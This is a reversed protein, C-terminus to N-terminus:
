IVVLDGSISPSFKLNKLYQSIEEKEKPYHYAAIVVKIQPNRKLTKEAGKLIKLEPGEADIKILDLKTINLEQLLTDLTKVNIQIKDIIEEGSMPFFSHCGSGKTVFFDKKGNSDSLAINVPIANKIKNLELNRRLQKFNHMEPEIAIVKGEGGVMKSALLTFTGIHAGVDVVIMRPKLQSFNYYDGMCVERFAGFDVADRLGIYYPDNIPLPIILNKDKFRSIINRSIDIANGRGFLLRPATYYVWYKLFPIISYNDKKWYSRYRLLWIFYKLDTFRNKLWDLIQM